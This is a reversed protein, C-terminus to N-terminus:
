ESENKNENLIEILRNICVEKSFNQEFYSRGNKGKITFNEKNILIQNRIEDSLNIYDGANVAIGCDSELIIEAGGGDIMGIVPKAAAMYSQLRAPVVLKLHPFEAKLTLLLADAQSFLNPMANLPFRGLLIISNELNNQTAFKEIEEKMSGDGVFIWKLEQIDRLLWIAKMVADLNQSKGLNGALMIKYGDPLQPVTVDENTKLMDESWNPFYEIKHKFNGKSAILTKFGKSSILIKDSHNYIFKVLQDIASLIRKNKIGGGSTMADPWIDLVWFYIPIRQLYKVIIAPIGQTIPSPEHVIIADYKKALSLFISWISAFFAYSLYNLALKLSNNKGRPIQLVRYVKVGNITEIRKSFLGYGRFYKGEPYNPIGALVSVKYGKKALEFAIDNSKFNEPHFYQTVLLIQKM